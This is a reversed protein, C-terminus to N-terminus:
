HARVSRSHGEDLVNLALINSLWVTKYDKPTLFGFPRFLIALDALTM